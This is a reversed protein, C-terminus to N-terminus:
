RKGVNVVVPPLTAGTAVRLPIKQSDGSVRKGDEDSVALIASETVLVLPEDFPVVAYHDSGNKVASLLRLNHYRKRNTIVVAEGHIGGKTQPLVGHPDNVHVKLQTGTQVRISLKTLNDGDAV